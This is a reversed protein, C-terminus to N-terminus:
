RRYQSSMRYNKRPGQVRWESSWRPWRTFDYTVHYMDPDCWHSAEPMTRELSFDHFARGDEFTVEIRGGPARAWRYIRRATLAPQDAITLQGEEEYVLADPGDPALTVHGTLTGDRGGLRDEITRFLGWRGEFDMLDKPARSM